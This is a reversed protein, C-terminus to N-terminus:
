VRKYAEVVRRIEQLNLESAALFGEDYPDRGDYEELRKEMWAVHEELERILSEM